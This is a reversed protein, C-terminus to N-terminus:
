YWNLGVAFSGTQISESQDGKFAASIFRLQLDVAFRRGSLVEYGLSGLLAGGDAVKEESTSIGDDFHVDLRSAGLGGKIWLRRTVWYQAAAFGTYQVLTTDGAEDLSKGGASTEFLIALRPTIMYGIHLGLAVAPTDEDCGRCEVSGDETAMGGAGLGVGFILGRRRDDQAAYTPPPPPPYYSGPQAYPAPATGPQAVAATATVLSLGLSAALAAVIRFMNM